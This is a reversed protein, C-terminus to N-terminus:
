AANWILVTSCIRRDDRDSRVVAREPTPASRSAATMTASAPGWRHSLIGGGVWVVELIEYRGPPANHLAGALAEPSIATAIAGDRFVIRYTRVARVGPFRRTSDFTIFNVRH